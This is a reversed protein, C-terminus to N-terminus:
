TSVLGFMRLLLAPILLKTMKFNFSHKSVIFNLFNIYSKRHITKAICFDLYAELSKYNATSLDRNENLIIDKALFHNKVNASVNQHHINSVYYDITFDDILYVASSSYYKVIKIWLEYDELAKLSENFSGVNILASKKVSVSSPGGIFNNIFINKNFDFKTIRLVKDSRAQLIRKRSACLAIECNIHASIHTKLHDVHWADDDDLFFIIDGQAQKIGFNRAKAPGSSCQKYYYDIRVDNRLKVNEIDSGDDIIIIQDATISQLFVSKLAYDLQLPRNKTTIIITVKM